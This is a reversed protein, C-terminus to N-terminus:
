NPATTPSLKRLQEEVAKIEGAEPKRSRAEDLWRWAYTTAGAKAHMEAAKVAMRWATPLKANARYALEWAAAAKAPQNIAEFSAALEAAVMEPAQELESLGLLLQLADNPHGSKRLVKAHQARLGVDDPSIRRAEVIRELAAAHNGQELEIMALTAHAIPEDPDIELARAASAKAEALKGQQMLLQAAFLPFQANRPDLKAATEFQELAAASEGAMMAMSGASHRLGANRDDIKVAAEYQKWARSWLEKAPLEEGRQEAQKAQMALTQGYLERGRVENPAKEILTVLIATAKAFDQSQTYEQAAALSKEIKASDIAPLDAAQPKAGGPEECSTL